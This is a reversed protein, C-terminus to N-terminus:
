RCTRCQARREDRGARGHLLGVTSQSQEDREQDQDHNVGRRDPDLVVGAEGALDFLVRSNAQTFTATLDYTFEQWDSGLQRLDIEAM